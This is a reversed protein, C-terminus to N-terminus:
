SKLHVWLAHNTIRQISTRLTTSTKVLTMRIPTERVKIVNNDETLKQHTCHDFSLLIQSRLAIKDSVRAPCIRIKFM